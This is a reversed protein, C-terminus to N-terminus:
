LSLEEVARDVYDEPGGPGTLVLDALEEFIPRRRELNEDPEVERRHGEGPKASEDPHRDIWICVAGDIAERGAPHDVASAAAAVVADPGEEIASLLVTLELAHLAPVGDSEAIAGSTRGTLERIQQDGDLFRRGLRRALLRGVTTKGAGM